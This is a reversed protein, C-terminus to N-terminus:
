KAKLKELLSIASKKESFDQEAKVITELLTIAKATNDNAVYAEALHFQIDGAKPALTAAKELM